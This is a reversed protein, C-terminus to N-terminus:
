VSVPRLLPELFLEALLPLLLLLRHSFPELSAKVVQDPCHGVQPVRHVTAVVHGPDFLVLLLPGLVVVVSYVLLGAFFHAVEPASLWVEFDRIDEEEPFDIGFGKSRTWQLCGNESFVVVLIPLIVQSQRPNRQERKRLAKYTLSDLVLHSADSTDLDLQESFFQQQFEAKRGM